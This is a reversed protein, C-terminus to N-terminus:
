QEEGGHTRVRVLCCPSSWKCLLNAPEGTFFTVLCVPGFICMDALVKRTVSRATIRPLIRDLLLYWYHGMAGIPAGVGAMRGWRGKDAIYKGEFKQQLRDGAAYVVGSTCVNFLLLRSGNLRTLRGGM